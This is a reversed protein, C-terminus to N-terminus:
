EAQSYDILTQHHLIKEESEVIDFIERHNKEGFRSRSVAVCEVPVQPYKTALRDTWNYVHWVCDVYEQTSVDDPTVIALLQVIAPEGSRRPCKQIGAEVGVVGDVGLMAVRFEDLLRVTDGCVRQSGGADQWASSIAAEDPTATTM